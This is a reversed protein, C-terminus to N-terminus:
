HEGTDGRVVARLAGLSERSREVSARLARRRMAEKVWAEEEEEAENRAERVSEVAADNGMMQGDAGIRVEAPGAAARGNNNNNASDGSVMLFSPLLELAHTETDADDDDVDEPEGANINKSIHENSENDSDDSASDVDAPVSHNCKPCRRNDCDWDASGCMECFRRHAHQTTTPKSVSTTTTTTTPQQDAASADETAAKRAKYVHLMTCTGEPKGCWQMHIFTPCAFRREARYRSGCERCHLQMTAKRLRLVNWANHECPPPPPATAILPVSTDDDAPAAVSTATSKESAKNNSQAPAHHSQPKSAAADTAPATNVSPIAPVQPLPLHQQPPMMFMPQPMMAMPSQHQQSYLQQLQQQQYQIIQQQQQIIQNQQILQQQQQQILQHLAAVSSQQNYSVKNSAGASTSQQQNKNKINNNDNGNNSNQTNKNTPVPFNVPFYM